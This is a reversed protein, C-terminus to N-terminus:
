GAGAEEDRAREPAVAPKDSEAKTPPSDIVKFKSFLEGRPERVLLAVRRTAM